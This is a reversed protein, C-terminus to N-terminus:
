QGILCFHQIFDTREFFEFAALSEERVVLVAGRASRRDTKGMGRIIEGIADDFAAGAGAASLAGLLSAVGEVLGKATRM